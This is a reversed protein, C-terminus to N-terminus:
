WDSVAGLSIRPVYTSRCRSAQARALLGKKWSSSVGEEREGGLRTAVYWSAIVAPM